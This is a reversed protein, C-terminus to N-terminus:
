PTVRRELSSLVQSASQGWGPPVLDPALDALPELVFRREAMRPHPVVLGPEDIAVDGFVLLDLDLTRPGWRQEKSRDRGFRRELDLLADLLERASCEVDLMAVANIFDPQDEIGVPSTTYLRSTAIVRVGSISGMEHAARIVSGSSDGMNSGLGIFARRGISRSSDPDAPWDEDSPYAM